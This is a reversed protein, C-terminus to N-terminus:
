GTTRRGHFYNQVWPHPFRAVERPAGEILVRGDLLVAMRDVISSITDLDHTAMVVTIGLLDRLEKITRDFYAAAVPDLGSTPEDLFLIEPDLALARALAARKKMGGSLEGPLVCAFDLPFNALALKVAALEEVLDASVSTFERLPLAVNQAVTLSSILGSFQFLVGWRSRLDRAMAPTLGELDYDLVRITGAVPRLLMIMERLLVTKGSGSGGVIAYIEGEEVKLNVGRHITKGGLRTVVERVEVM